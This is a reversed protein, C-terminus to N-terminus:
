RQRISTAWSAAASNLRRPTTNNQKRTGIRTTVCIAWGVSRRWPTRTIMAWSVGGDPWASWATHSPRTTNVRTPSCPPSTTSRAFFTQITTALPAGVSRSHRWTTPWPRKTSGRSTCCAAWTNNISGLTSPHSNGLIRRNSELAKTVYPLAEDYRGKVRLLTGINDIIALTQLSEDGLSRRATALAEEYYTMADDIRGLKFCLNAVKNISGLTDPHEQGLVRRRGELTESAMSMAEDYQGKAYLIDTMAGLATWTEPHDDGFIRRSSEMDEVFYPMAQDYKGQRLYLGGMNNIAALTNQHDNGLVHRRLTLAEILHPEADQLQGLGVYTDGIVFHIDSKVLPQDEFQSNVSTSAESLVLKMLEKDMGGATAPDVSGLMTTVFNKVAKARAAEQQAQQRAVDARDREQQATSLLVLSVVTAAILVLVFAMATIAPVKNRGLYKRARYTKTMPGAELPEGTLYRRVDNAMAEPTSYRETRDKRLAKLPVWELERRLVHRLSSVDTRRSDAIGATDHSTGSSLRTSPRPPLSERISQKLSEQGTTTANEPAFPVHGSLLEYLIVGLTYVDSRTDIDESGEVQEPSMYVLTGVLQGAVTHLTMETLTSSVAKAIGFDIVKPQAEDSDDRSVLINGPKLDRHIIGKQHAHQIADCIKIFLELRARTDLRNDNCYSSLDKGKIYEMAFWPRGTDTAGAELVKAIGPHDMMALAQREAQFRALTSRTDFGPKIVKLAVQRRVPTSQEAFYVDGMGGAGVRHRITFPSIVDGPQYAGALPESSQLDLTMDHDVLQSEVAARLGPDNGCAQDLYAGRDEPALKMAENLIEKARHHPM